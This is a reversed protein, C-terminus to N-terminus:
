ASRAHSAVYDPAECGLFPSKRAYTRQVESCQVSFQRKRCFRNVGTWTQRCEFLVATRGCCDGGGGGNGLSSYAEGKQLLMVVLSALFSSRM